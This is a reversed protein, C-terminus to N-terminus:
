EDEKRGNLAVFTFTGVLVAVALPLAWTLWAGGLFSAIVVSV